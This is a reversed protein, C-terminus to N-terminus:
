AWAIVVTWQVGYVHERGRRQETCSSMSPSWGGRGRYTRISQCQGARRWHRQSTRRHESLEGMVKGMGQVVQLKTVTSSSGMSRQEGDVSYISGGGALKSCLM